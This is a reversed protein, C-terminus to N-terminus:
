DYEAFPRANLFHIGFHYFGRGKAGKAKEDNPKRQYSAVVENVVIKFIVPPAVDGDCFVAGERGRGRGHGLRVVEVVVAIMVESREQKGFPDAFVLLVKNLLPVDLLPGYAEDDLYPLVM